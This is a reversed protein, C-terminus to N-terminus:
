TKSKFQEALGKPARNRWAIELADRVITKRAAKMSVSTAGQKGWGGKVPSFIKPAVEVFTAQQEPTLKVM